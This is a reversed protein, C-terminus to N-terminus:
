SSRCPFAVGDFDNGVPQSKLWTNWGLRHGRAQGDTPGDGLCCGPVEAALLVPQLEFDFQAGAMMRTFQGFPAFASGDPMFKQFDQYTLPGVRVRFCSQVDWIRSGLLATRGVVANAAEDPRGALRSWQCRDLALWRGHFQGLRVPVGLWHRLADEIAIAPAPKKLLVNAYPILAQDDFSSRHRLEPCALGLISFIIDTFAGGEAAGRAQAQEYAIAPTTKEWARHFLSILRHNFLDLFRSTADDKRRNRAIILSTYHHPLVGNPGFLGFFTVTVRAAGDVNAPAQFGAIEAGPFTLTPSAAFRVPESAPAHGHGVPSKGIAALQLLRVAQHFEFLWPERALLETV